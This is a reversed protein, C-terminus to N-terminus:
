IGFGPTISTRKEILHGYNPNLEILIAKRGLELAVKGTTGSGGFPDLVTDGLKTSALICPTVLASPYTAFHADPYPTTPITWVTRKNRREVLQSVAASFSSNQRPRTSRRDQGPGNKRGPISGKYSGGPKAHQLTSHAGPGDAWGACKPNVGSGRSHANGTVPEKIAESDYYYRGSKSLLFLYEHALAPRDKVSEPMANPKHWIIDRRLYWGDARLAFALMWPQGVLDKNKLGPVMKRNPNSMYCDGMNIWCTGDKRLVRKVERFVGVLKEIFEAPTKELGIQGKVGYDRLGWYPPSTVCCQVSEDPLTKLVERCDGIFVTNM